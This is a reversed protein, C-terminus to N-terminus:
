VSPTPPELGEGGVLGKGRARRPPVGFEKAHWRSFAGVSGYGLLDAIDTIRLGSHALLQTAQRARVRNLLLSFSAGEADLARQLSRVTQGMSAACVQVSARGSPLLMAILAEVEDARTRAAPGGAALLQRAHHALQRDARPNIRDFDAAAVVIGDFASDFLPRCGFLRHYIALEARPPAARSFCVARPNWGEGLAASCIKALVGLALDLAQRWPEPRALSFSERLVVEDGVAQYDLVLTSNVRARFECLAEISLRLSPQHAILLSTAGLHALTRGEAMRLGLTECGTVAASRELLRIIAPAAIPQEPERLLDASLGQERLLPRPDAGLVAMVEFYGSLAAVRVLEAM